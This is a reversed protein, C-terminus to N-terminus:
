PYNYGPSRMEVVHTCYHEPDAGAWGLQRPTCHTNIAELHDLSWYGSVPDTVYVPEMMKLPRSFETCAHNLALELVTDIHMRISISGEQASNMKLLVESEPYVLAVTNQGWHFGATAPTDEDKIWGDQSQLMLKASKDINLRERIDVFSENNQVSIPHESLELVGSSVQQLITDHVLEPMPTAAEDDDTIWYDWEADELELDTGDSDGEVVPLHIGLSHMDFPNRDGQM